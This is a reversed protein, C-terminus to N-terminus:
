RQRKNFIKEIDDQTMVEDFLYGNEGDKIVKQIEPIKSGIVAVGHALAERITYCYSEISSLQVLYDACRYLVDNYISSPVYM